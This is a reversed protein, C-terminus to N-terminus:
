SYYRPVSFLGAWVLTVMTLGTMMKGVYSLLYMAGAFKLSETISEVMIVAKLAALLSNLRAAASEIASTV